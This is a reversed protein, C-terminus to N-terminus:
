EYQLSKDILSSANFNKFNLYFSNYIMQINYMYNLNYKKM